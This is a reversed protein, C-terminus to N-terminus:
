RGEHGEYCCWDCLFNYKSNSNKPYEEKEHTLRVSDNCCRCSKGYGMKINLRQHRHSSGEEKTQQGSDGVKQQAQPGGDNKMDDCVTLINILWPDIFIVIQHYGVYHEHESTDNHKEMLKDTM